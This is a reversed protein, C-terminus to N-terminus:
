HDRRAGEFTEWEAKGADLVREVLTEALEAPIFCVGTGDALVLDGTCIQHGGCSVPANISVGELRGKGTLPTLARSWVPFGIALYEDIDRIAGDVVFGSLGANLADLAGM